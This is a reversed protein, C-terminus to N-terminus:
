SATATPTSAAVHLESPAARMADRSADLLRAEIEEYRREQATRADFMHLAFLKYYGTGTVIFGAALGGAKIRWM